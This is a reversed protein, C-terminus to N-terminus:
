PMPGFSFALPIPAGCDKCAKDRSPGVYGCSCEVYFEYRLIHHAKREKAREAVCIDRSRRPTVVGWAAFSDALFGIQAKQRKPFQPDKLIELILGPDATFDGREYPAALQVATVVDEKTEAKSLSPWIRDWVLQLIGRYHDARDVVESAPIKPPRGRDRGESLKRRRAESNNKRKKM